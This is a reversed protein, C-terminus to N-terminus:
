DKLCYHLSPVVMGGGGDRGDSQWMLGVEMEVMQNGRERERERERLWLRRWLCGAMCAAVGAGTEMKRLWAGWCGGADQGLGGSGHACGGGAMRAAQHPEPKTAHHAGAHEHGRAAGGAEVRPGAEDHGVGNDAEARQEGGEAYSETSMSSPSSTTRSLRPTSGQKRM